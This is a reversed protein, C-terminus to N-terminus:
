GQKMEYEGGFKFLQTAELTVAEEEPEESVPNIFQEILAQEGTGIAFAIGGEKTMKDPKETWRGSLTGHLTSLAEACEFEAFAEGPAPETGGEQKGTFSVVPERGAGEGVVGLLLKTEIEGAERGHTTCLQGVSNKCGTFKFTAQVRTAGLVEGSGGSKSCAIEGQTSVLRAAKHKPAKGKATWSPGPDLEYKDAKGGLAIEEASAEVTCHKDLYHGSYGKNVKVAKVCTPSSVIETSAQAGAAIAASLASAVILCLGTIRTRGHM